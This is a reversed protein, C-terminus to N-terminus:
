ESARANGDSLHRQLRVLPVMGDNAANKPRLLLSTEVVPDAHYNVPTFFTRCFQTEMLIRTMRTM